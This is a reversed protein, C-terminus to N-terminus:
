PLSDLGIAARRLNRLPNERSYAASETIKAPKHPITKLLVTSILLIQAAFHNTKALTQM